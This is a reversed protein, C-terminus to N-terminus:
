SDSLDKPASAQAHSGTLFCDWWDPHADIYSVLGEIQELHSADFHHEIGEVIRHVEQPPGMQLLTLLRELLQHRAYLLRGRRRGKPTFSFGRYREYTLLGADHLRRVMKSVSAPSIKLVEALDTVRAYGKQETLVWIAELYDEQSPTSM